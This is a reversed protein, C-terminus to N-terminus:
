KHEKKPQPLRYRPTVNPMNDKPVMRESSGPMQALNRMNPVLCPMNDYPLIYIDGRDTRHSFTGQRLLADPQIFRRVTSDKWLIKEKFKRELNDSRNPDQAQAYVGTLIACCLCFIHQIQWPM